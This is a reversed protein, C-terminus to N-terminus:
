ESREHNLHDLHLTIVRRIVGLREQYQAHVEPHHEKLYSARHEDWWASCCRCDMGCTRGEYFRPVPAGEQRLFEFVQEHTWDQLPYLYEIGDIVQGSRIPQVPMDADKTGRIILTIGDDIMRQGMPQMINSWCCYFRDTIKDKGFGLVRGIPSCSTPMLDSPFGNEAQWALVDGHIEVFHPCMARVQEMLEFTEPFPDGPNRWYVTIRDLWPRLLYLCALSDKGGSFQLAIRSHRSLITEFDM